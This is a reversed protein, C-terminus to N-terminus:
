HRHRSWWGSRRPRQESPTEGSSSIVPEPTTSPEAAASLESQDSHSSAMAPERVTSRRRVPETAAPMASAGPEPVWAPVQPPPEVEAPQHHPDPQMLSPIDRSPQQPVEDSESELEHSIPEHPPQSGLSDAPPYGAEPERDYRARRGGRRGRRRRRREGEMISTAPEETHTAPMPAAWELSDSTQEGPAPDVSEEEVFAPASTEHPL